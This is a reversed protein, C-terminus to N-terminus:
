PGRGDHPFEKKAKTFAAKGFRALDEHFLQFLEKQPGEIAKGYWGMAEILMDLRHVDVVVAVKSEDDLAILLKHEIIAHSVPKIETGSM